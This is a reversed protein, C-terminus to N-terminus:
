FIWFVKFRLYQRQIEHAKLACILVTTPDREEVTIISM